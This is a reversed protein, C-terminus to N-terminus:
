TTFYLITAASFSILALAAFVWFLKRHWDEDVHNKIRQWRMWTWYLAFLVVFVTTVIVAGTLLPTM